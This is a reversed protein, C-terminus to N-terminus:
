PKIFVFSCYSRNHSKGPSNLHLCFLNPVLKLPDISVYHHYLSEKVQYFLAPIIGFDPPGGVLQHQIHDRDEITNCFLNFRMIRFSDTPIAPYKIEPDNWLIHGQAQFLIMGADWDQILLNTM